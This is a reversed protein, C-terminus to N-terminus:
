FGVLPEKAPSLNSFPLNKTLLILTKRIFLTENFDLIWRSLIKYLGKSVM